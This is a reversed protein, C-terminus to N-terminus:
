KKGLLIFIVRPIPGTQDHSMMMMNTIKLQRNHWCKVLRSDSITVWRPIDGYGSYDVRTSPLVLM